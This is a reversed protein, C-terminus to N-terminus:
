SISAPGNDQSGFSREEFILPSPNDPIVPVSIPSALFAAAATQLASRTAQNVRPHCFATPTSDHFREVYDLANRCREQNGVPQVLRLSAEIQHIDPPTTKNYTIPGDSMSHPVFTASQTSIPTFDERIGM